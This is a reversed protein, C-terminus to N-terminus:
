CAQYTNLPAHLRERAILAKGSFSQTLVEALLLMTLIMEKRLWLDRVGKSEPDKRETFITELADILPEFRSIIRNCTEGHTLWRTTCDKLIKLPTVDHLM